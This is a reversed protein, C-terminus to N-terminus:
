AEQIYCLLSQFIVPNPLALIVFDWENEWAMALPTPNSNSLRSSADNQPNQDLLTEPMCHIQQWCMLNLYLINMELFCTHEAAADVFPVM